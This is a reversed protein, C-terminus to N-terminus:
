YWLAFIKTGTDLEPADPRKLQHWAIDCGHGGLILPASSGHQCRGVICSRHFPRYGQMDARHGARLKQEGLKHIIEDMTPVQRDCRTQISRQVRDEGFHRVRQELSSPQEPRPIFSVVSTRSVALLWSLSM